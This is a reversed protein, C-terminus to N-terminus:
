TRSGRWLREDAQRCLWWAPEAAADKDLFREHEFCREDRDVVVFVNAIEDGKTRRYRNWRPRLFGWLLPLDVLHAAQRLLADRIRVQILRLRGDPMEVVQVARLGVIRNGISRGAGAQALGLYGFLAVAVATAWVVAQGSWSATVFWQPADGLDLVDRLFWLDAAVLAAALVATVVLDVVWAALRMGFTALEAPGPWAGPDRSVDHGAPPAPRRRTRHQTM